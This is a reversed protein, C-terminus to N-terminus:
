FPIDELELDDAGDWALEEGPPPPKRGDSYDLQVIEHFRPDNARPKIKIRSPITWSVPAETLAETTTLARPAWPPCVHWM